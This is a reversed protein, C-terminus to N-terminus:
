SAMDQGFALIHGDPDRVAFEKIGYDTELRPEYAILGGAQQFSAFLANVDDVWFYADWAGGQQANTVINQDAAAQQLMITFGDRAPMAFTPPEGWLQPKTFGLIRHYYDLAAPLDRVLFYPASAVFRPTTSRQTM